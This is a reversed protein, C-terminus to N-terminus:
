RSLRSCIRDQRFESVAGGAATAPAGGAATAPAAISDTTMTELYVDVCVLLRQLQHSLLFRVDYQSTSELDTMHMNLETEM